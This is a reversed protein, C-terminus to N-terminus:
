HIGVPTVQSFTCLTLREFASSSMFGLSVSSSNFIYISIESFLYWIKICVRQLQFWHVTWELPSVTNKVSVRNLIQKTQLLWSQVPSTLATGTSVPLAEPSIILRASHPATLACSPCPWKLRPWRTFPFDHRLTAVSETCLTCILRGMETWFFHLIGPDILNSFVESDLSHGVLGHCQTYTCDKMLRM